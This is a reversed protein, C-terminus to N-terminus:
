LSFVQLECINSEKPNGYKRMGRSMHDSRLSKTNRLPATAETAYASGASNNTQDL